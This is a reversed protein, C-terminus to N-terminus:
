GSTVLRGVKGVPTRDMLCLVSGDKLPYTGVPAQIIATNSSGDETLTCLVDGCPAVEDQPLIDEPTIRDPCDEEVENKTRPGLGKKDGALDEVEEVDSAVAEM